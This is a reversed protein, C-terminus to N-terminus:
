PTMSYIEHWQRAWPAARDPTSRASNFFIRSGDASWHPHSDDGPDSTLRRRGRGDANIVFIESQGEVNAAFVIRRGDPSWVAVVPDDGSDLFLKINKGDPEATYLAWRGSRTSQFLLRSGDPSLSPYADEVPTLPEPEGAIPLATIAAAAVLLMLMCTLRARSAWRAM